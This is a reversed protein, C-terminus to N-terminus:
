ISRAPRVNPRPSSRPPRRRGDDHACAGAGPPDPVDGARNPLIHKVLQGPSLTVWYRQTMICRPSRRATGPLIPQRHQLDRDSHAFRMPVSSQRGNGRPIPRRCGSRLTAADADEARRCRRGGPQARPPGPRGPPCRSGLCCVRCCRRYRRRLFFGLLPRHQQDCRSTSRGALGIPMSSTGTLGEVSTWAKRCMSVVTQM